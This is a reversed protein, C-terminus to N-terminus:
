GSVGTFKHAYPPYSIFCIQCSKSLSPFKLLLERFVDEKRVKPDEMAATTKVFSVTWVRERPKTQISTKAKAESTNAATFGGKKSPNSPQDLLVGRELTLPQFAESTVTDTCDEFAMGTAAPVFATIRGTRVAAEFRTWDAECATHVSKWTLSANCM